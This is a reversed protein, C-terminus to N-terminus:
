WALREPEGFRLDLARIVTVSIVAIVTNLVAAVLLDSLSLGEFAINITFALLALLLLQYV